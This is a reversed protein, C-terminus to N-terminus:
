PRATTAMATEYRKLYDSVIREPEYALAKAYLTLYGRLYPRVPLLRFREEEIYELYRPSIKTIDAINRISLNRQERLGRLTSGSFEGIAAPAPNLRSPMAPQPSAPEGKGWSFMEVAVNAPAAPASRYQGGGEKGGEGRLGADYSERREPQILTRYAEDIRQRIREIEERSFLSYIALSDPSYYSRMREGAQRIEQASAGPDVQLLEYHNLEAMRNLM